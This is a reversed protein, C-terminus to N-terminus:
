PLAVVGVGGLPKPLSESPIWVASESHFNQSSTFSKLVNRSLRFLGRVGALGLSWSEFLLFLTITESRNRPQKPQKTQRADGTSDAWSLGIVAAVEGRQFRQWSPRVKIHELPM